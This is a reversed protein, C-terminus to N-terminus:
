KERRRKPRAASLNEGETGTRGLGHRWRCRNRLRRLAFVTRPRQEVIFPELVTIRPLTQFVTTTGLAFNKEHGDNVAGGRGLMANLPVRRPSANKHERTDGANPRQEPKM